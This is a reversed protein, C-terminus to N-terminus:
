RINVRLQSLDIRQVQYKEACFRCQPIPNKLNKFFSEKVDDSDDVGLPRYSRALSKDHDSIDLEFQDMFEPLLASVGCKYLKGRIFHHSNKMGCAAHARDPDSQHLRLKGDPGSQVASRYFDLRKYLSIKVRNKDFWHIRDDYSVRQAGQLFDQIAQEIDELHDLSHLNIELWIGTDRMAEYLGRVRNIQTGNTIIWPRRDPWLEKIGTMWQIITPNLLPEGGIIAPNTIDVLNAWERYVDRYDQWAQWGRFDFDNFRNCNQCALNCVNTIYFEAYDLSYKKM